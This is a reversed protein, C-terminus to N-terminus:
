PTVEALAARFHDRALARVREAEVWHLDHGANPFSVIRSKPYYAALHEQNSKTNVENKDGRLFLVERPYERLRTTWDFNGAAAPLCQAVVGGARWFPEPDAESKGFARAAASFTSATLLDARAHDDPTLTRGLFTADNMDESLPAHLIVRQMYAGVEAATFGGPEILVASTVREPHENIFWTAYMAGWSHGLFFLPRGAPAYRDVLAELDGLYVEPTVEECPHRRSLGTGRQDWQVVFFGDAALADLRELSRHDSGPGGHLMVVVPDAPSGRTTLHLRTGNLEVAPLSADEDVTPPVLPSFDDACGPTLGTAAALAAISLGYRLSTEM